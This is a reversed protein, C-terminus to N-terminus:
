GEAQRILYAEALIYDRHHCKIHYGWERDCIRDLILACRRVESMPPRRGCLRVYEQALAQYRKRETVGPERPPAARLTARKHAAGRRVSRCLLIKEAAMQRRQLTGVFDKKYLM